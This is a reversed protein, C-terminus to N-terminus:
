INYNIIQPGRNLGNCNAIRKSINELTKATHDQGKSGYKALESELRAAFACEDVWIAEINQSIQNAFYRLVRQWIGWFLPSKLM